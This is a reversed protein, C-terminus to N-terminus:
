DRDRVPWAVNGAEIAARQAATITHEELAEIERTSLEQNGAEALAEALTDGVAWVVPRMGDTGVLAVSVGRPIWILSADERAIARAEDVSIGVRAGETPDAYKCLTFGHADAYTIAALGTITSM